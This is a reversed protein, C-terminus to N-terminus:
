KANTVLQVPTSTASNTSAIPTPSVVAAQAPVPTAISAPPIYKPAYSTFVQECINGECIACSYTYDGEIAKRHIPSNMWWNFAAPESNEYILNETAWYPLNKAYFGSHLAGTVHIENYLEPRRSEAVSCVKEDKQFAPKGISARYTNILGFLVDANLIASPTAPVELSSYEKYYVTQPAKTPTPTPTAFELVETLLFRRRKVSSDEKPESKVEVICKKGDKSLKMYDPLPCIKGPTKPTDLEQAYAKPVFTASIIGAWFTIMIAWLAIHIAKNM